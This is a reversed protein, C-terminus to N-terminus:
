NTRKILKIGMELLRDELTEHPNLIIKKHPNNNFEEFRKEYVNNLSKIFEDTNGRNRMRNTYEANADKTPYCLVYDIGYQDYYALAHEPHSWVCVVDYKKSADIIANIYNMPYDPNPTRSKDGKLKESNKKDEDSYIWKYASSELDICNKYKKALTTKGIGAWGAIIM